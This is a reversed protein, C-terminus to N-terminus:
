PCLLKVCTCAVAKGGSDRVFDKDHGNLSREHDGGNQILSGSRDDYDLIKVADRFVVAKKSGM